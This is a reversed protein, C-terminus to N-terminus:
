IVIKEIILNKLYIELTGYKSVLTFRIAIVNALDCGENISYDNMPLKISNWTNNKLNFADGIKWWIRKNNNDNLGIYMFNDEVIKNRIIKMNLYISNINNFNSVGEFNYQFPKWGEDKTISILIVTNDKKDQSMNYFGLTLFNNSDFDYTTNELM